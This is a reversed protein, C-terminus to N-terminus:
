SYPPGANSNARSMLIKFVVYLQALTMVNARRVSEIVWIALIVGYDTLFTIFLWRSLPDYEYIIPSFCINIPAWRFHVSLVKFSITAQSCTCIM